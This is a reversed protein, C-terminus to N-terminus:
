ICATDRNLATGVTRSDSRSWGLLLNGFRARIEQDEAGAAPDCKTSLETPAKDLLGGRNEQHRRESTRTSLKRRGAFQPMRQSDMRTGMSSTGPLPRRRM